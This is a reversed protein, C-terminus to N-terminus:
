PHKTMYRFVYLRHPSFVWLQYLWGGVNPPVTLWSHKMLRLLPWDNGPPAATYRGRGIKIIPKWLTVGEM